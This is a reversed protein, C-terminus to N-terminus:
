LRHVVPTAPCTARCAACTTRPQITPDAAGADQASGRRRIVRAPVGAVVTYPAVDRTVVAGAAVVAGTGITVGGLIVSAAGIWVDDEITVPDRSTGQRLIPVHRAAYIHSSTYVVSHAGIGVQNGITLGAAGNMIVYPGISCEHGMTIFGGNPILILGETLICRDGFTVPGGGKVRVSWSVQCRRGFRVAPNRLRTKSQAATSAISRLASRIFL